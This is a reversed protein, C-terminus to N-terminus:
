GRQQWFCLVHKWSKEMATEAEMTELTEKIEREKEAEAVEEVVDTEETGTQTENEQATGSKRGTTECGRKTENRQSTRSKSKGTTEQAAAAEEVVTERVPEQRISCRQPDGECVDGWPNPMREGHGYPIGWVGHM